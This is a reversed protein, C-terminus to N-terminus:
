AVSWLDSMRRTILRRDAPGLERLRLGLTERDVDLTRALAALDHTGGATRVAIALPEIPILRRAAERHVRLEERTAWPGCEVVGRELHVLEHALTCRRQAPSSDARLAILPYRLWGLLRGSMPELVIEVDPWNTRADDWPDYPGSRGLDPRAPVALPLPHDTPATV